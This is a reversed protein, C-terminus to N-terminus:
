TASIIKKINKLDQWANAKWRPNRLLAAPHYTVLMPIEKYKHASNRMTSLSDASKLLNQAAVRGLALIAQPQIMDIQKLLYPECKVIEDPLPDRNQPPRCKLINAIYIQDRQLGIAQLMKDLLQGARGVFPIGSEDEDRGPAEGILMLQAGPHGVGFVFNHRTENLPCKVCDKIEEYYAQLEPSRQPPIKKLAHTKRTRIQSRQLDPKPAVTKKTPLAQEQVEVFEGDLYVQPTFVRNYQRLFNELQDLINTM